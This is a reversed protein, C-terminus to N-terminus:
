QKASQPTEGFRKCRPTPSSSSFSSEISFLSKLKEADEGFLRMSIEANISFKTMMKTTEVKIVFWVQHRKKQLQPKLSSGCKTCRRRCNCSQHRIMRPDDEKLTTAKIVFWVHFIKKKTTAAEVVFRVQHRKRQLQPKLSSGCKTCRRRCNRHPDDEKLTTAKIFFWVYFIKRKKQLQPKLSSGCKIGRRKYNRNQLHVVSSAVSLADEEIIAAKARVASLADKELNFSPSSDYNIDRRRYNQSQWSLSKPTTHGLEPSYSSTVHDISLSMWSSNVFWKKINSEKKRTLGKTHSSIDM